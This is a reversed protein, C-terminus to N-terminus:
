VWTSAGRSCVKFTHFLDEYDALFREENALDGVLPRSDTAPCVQACAPLM